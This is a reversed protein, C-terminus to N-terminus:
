SAGPEGESEAQETTEEEVEKIQRNKLFVYERKADEDDPYLGVYTQMVDWAKDFNGNYEYAITLNRLLEQNTAGTPTAVGQELYSIAEAYREEQLFFTGAALLSEMDAENAAFYADFSQEAEEVRGTTAYIQAFYLDVITSGLDKAASLEEMANDYEGLLYYLKGRYELDSVSDGKISFAKKLYAVATEEDGAAKLNEYIQIYLEYDKPCYTIANTFDVGALELEGKRAYICGRLFYAYAEKPFLELIADYTAKAGEVDGLAYQAAAKYYSIDIDDADVSGVEQALAAEFAELAGDYDSENMCAIGAERLLDKKEKEQNACGSLLWVCALTILMGKYKLSKRM